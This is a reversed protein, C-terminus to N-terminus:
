SAGRCLLVAPVTMLLIQLDRWISIDRVYEIDMQMWQEFSIHNRGSVQWSGTVGPKADLRERQWLTLEDSEDVPLPRPGVLSMDGILVNWLQPLEDISLKRLFKGVPLVRPDNDLKFAPGDRDSMHRLEDVVKDAGMQMTRLKQITFKRGSQGTRTQTFLVTGRSSLKILVAATLLIPAAAVLGLASFLIDISRKWIPTPVAFFTAATTSETVMGSAGEGNSERLLSTMSEDPFQIIEFEVTLRKEECTACVRKAIEAATDATFDPFLVGIRGDNAIGVSDIEALHPRIAQELVESSSPSATTEPDFLVVTLVSNNRYIRMRERM